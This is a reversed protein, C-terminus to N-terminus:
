AALAALTDDFVRHVLCAGYVLTNVSCHHVPAQPLLLPSPPPLRLKYCFTPDTFSMEAYKSILEAKTKGVGVINELAQAGANIFSKVNAFSAKINRLDNKNISPFASVFNDRADEYKRKLTHIKRSETHLALIYRSSEEPSFSLVLAFNHAFATEFLEEVYMSYDEVDVQLLVIHVGHVGTCRKLRRSIYEPKRAHFRLSLFLVGAAGSVEYDAPTDSDFRWLTKPLYELVNNGRQVTSVKIM